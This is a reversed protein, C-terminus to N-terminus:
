YTTQPAHGNARARHVIGAVACRSIGTARAAESFTSGQGVLQKVRDLVSRSHRPRPAMRPKLNLRKRWWYVVPRAVGITAAIRAASAGDNWMRELKARDAPAMRKKAEPTKCNECYFPTPGGKRRKRTTHADAGCSMCTYIITVLDDTM